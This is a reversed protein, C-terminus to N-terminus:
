HLYRLRRLKRNQALIHGMMLTRKERAVHSSVEISTFFLMGMEGPKPPRPLTTAMPPRPKQSPLPPNPGEGGDGTPWM